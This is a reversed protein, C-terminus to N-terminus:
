KCDSQVRHIVHDTISIAEDGEERFGSNLTGLALPQHERAGSLPKKM